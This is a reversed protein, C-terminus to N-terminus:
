VSATGASPIVATGDSATCVYVEPTMQFSRRYSAFIAAIMAEVADPAVLSVTCGGFGAGTLRSGFVGPVLQATQVLLDLQPSSVEYDDRLSQHSENMLRGFSRLDGAALYEAGEVTRANETVVHRARRRVAPPLLQEHRALQAPTVDRLAVIGPLVTQLRKVADECQARRENYASGALERSVKSDCVVLRVDAPM